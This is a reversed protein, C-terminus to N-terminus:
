VCLLWWLQWLQLAEYMGPAKHGEDKGDRTDELHLFHPVPTLLVSSIPLKPVASSPKFAPLRAGSIRNSMSLLFSIPNPPLFPFFEYRQPQTKNKSAMVGPTLCFRRSGM